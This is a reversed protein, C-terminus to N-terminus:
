VSALIVSIGEVKVGHRELEYTAKSWRGSAHLQRQKASVSKILQDNIALLRDDVKIGAQEGPGGPDVSKAVVVGNEEHWWVGDYPTSYRGEKQFNIVAFAVATATVLALTVASFRILSDRRMRQNRYSGSASTGGN